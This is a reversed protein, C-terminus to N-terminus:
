SAIKKKLDKLNTCLYKRVDRERKRLKNVYDEVKYIVSELFILIDIRSNWTPDSFLNFILVHIGEIFTSICSQIIM